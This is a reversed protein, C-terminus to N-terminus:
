PTLGPNVRPYDQMQPDVRLQSKSLRVDETQGSSVYGLSGLINLPPRGQTSEVFDLFIGKAHSKCLILSSIDGHTYDKQTSWPEVKPLGHSAKEHPVLDVLNQEFKKIFKVSILNIDSLQLSYDKEKEELKFRFFIQYM